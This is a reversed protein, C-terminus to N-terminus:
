LFLQFYIFSHLLLSALTVIAVVGEPEMFHTAKHALGNEFHAPFTLFVLESFAFCRTEVIVSAPPLYDFQLERDIVSVADHGAPMFVSTGPFTDIGSYREAANRQLALLLEKYKHGSPPSCRM